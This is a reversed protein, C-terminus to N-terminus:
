RTMFHCDWKEVRFVEKTIKQFDRAAIHMLRSCALLVACFHCFCPCCRRWYAPLYRLPSPNQESVSTQSDSDSVQHPSLSPPFFLASSPIKRQRSPITDKKVKWASNMQWGVCVLYWCIRTRLTRPMEYIRTKEDSFGGRRTKDYLIYQMQMM